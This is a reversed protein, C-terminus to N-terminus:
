GAYKKEFETVVRKMSYPIRNNAFECMDAPIAAPGMQKKYWAEAIGGAICALTDSDGGISIALQMCHKYDRSELFCALAQPVTGQCSEDFHYAPRIEACTKSLDYGFQKTVYGRIDDRSAGNRAMFISAATAQAGKVGEPHNHTCEASRKAEELTKDLSDFAWGVPSVRMASGNGWSNYPKPDGSALWRRFGGGYGAFPFKRGWRRM